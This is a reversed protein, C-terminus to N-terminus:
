RAVGHADTASARQADMGAGGADRRASGQHDLERRDLDRPPAVLNRLDRVVAGHRRAMRAHEVRQQQLYGEVGHGVVAGLVPLIVAWGGRPHKWVKDVTTQSPRGSVLGKAEDLTLDFERAVAKVTGAPFRIRVYTALADRTARDLGLSPLGGVENTRIEMSTVKM